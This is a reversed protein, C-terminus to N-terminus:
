KAGMRGIRAMRTRFDGVVGFSLFGSSMGQVEGSGGGKCRVVRVVERESMRAWEHGNTFNTSLV